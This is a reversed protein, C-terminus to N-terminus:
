DSCKDGSQKTQRNSQNQRNVLTTPFKPTRKQGVAHSPRPALFGAKPAVVSRTLNLNRDRGRFGPGPWSRPLTAHMGRRLRRRPIRIAGRDVEIAVAGIYATKAPLGVTGLILSAGDRALSSLRAARRGQAQDRDGGPRVVTIVVSPTFFIILAFEHVKHKTAQAENAAHPPPPDSVGAVGDETVIAPVTALPMARAPAATLMLHAAPLPVAVVALSPLYETVMVPALRGQASLTTPVSPLTKWETTAPVPLM